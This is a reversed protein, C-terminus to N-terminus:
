REGPIPPTQLPSHSFGPYPERVSLRRTVPATRWSREQAASQDPLATSNYVIGPYGGLVTCYSLGTIFHERDISV